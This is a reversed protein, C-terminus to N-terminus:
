KKLNKIISLLCIKKYYALHVVIKFKLSKRKLIQNKKWNPFKNDIINRIKNIYKKRVDKFQIYRLTASYLLHEIYLYELVDNYEGNTRKAFEKDLHEIVIFIDDIKKNFNQIRMTSNERIVYSYLTVNIHSITHAYLGLLPITGLDEYIIGELFYINNNTFLEKKYLRAVPGPHSIMYNKIKNDFLNNYNDYDKKKGKTIKTINCISIDSNNRILSEYLMNLYECDVYDDADVFTIYPAQSKRIGNNRAAGQGSNKQNILTINKHNEAYKEVIKATNDTSGDNILLIEFDKFTQAILSDICRSIREEENYFPIIVSIKSM